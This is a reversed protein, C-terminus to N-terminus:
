GAPVHGGDVLAGLGVRDLVQHGRGGVVINSRATWSMSMLWRETSMVETSRYPVSNTVTVTVTVAAQTEASRQGARPRARLLAGHRQGVVVM